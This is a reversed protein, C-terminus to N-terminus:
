TIHNLEEKNAFYNYLTGLAIGSEGGVVRMNLAKLGRKAAM